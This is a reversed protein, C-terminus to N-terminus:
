CRNEFHRSAEYVKIKKKNCRMELHRSRSRLRQYGLVRADLMPWNMEGIEEEEQGEM